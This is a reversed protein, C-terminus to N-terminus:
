SVAGSSGLAARDILLIGRSGVSRIVGEDELKVFKRSVTERAVGLYNAIGERSLPLRILVGGDAPAGYKDAFEILLAGVRSDLSRVGMGELANEMRALRAGLEEIIKLAIGPHAGLLNRFDERLFACTRVDELAEATFSARHEGFLNREGFFDGESFVYLIQERGDPTIRYAKVSGESVITLADIPDGDSFLVEGRRYRRHRILAAASQLDAGSLSSFAPVKSICLAHPCAGSPCAREALEGAGRALRYMNM